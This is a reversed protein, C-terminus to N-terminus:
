LKTLLNIQNETDKHNTKTTNNNKDANLLARDMDVVITTGSKSHHNIKSIQPKKM